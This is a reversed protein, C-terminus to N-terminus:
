LLKKAIDSASERYYITLMRLDKHGIAMALANINLKSALRTVAEARSDHFHLDKILAKDRAKRFLADIQGTKLQFVLEESKDLSNLIAIAKPSLPVDRRAAQTKGFTKLYREELYVRDWTLGAIEGARMGTEIAFAFAAGVRATITSPTNGDYGLTYLLSDIEKQSPRRERARPTAPRKVDKMPHAPLWKWEKVAISCASSLINWERLVSAASVSKLRRDRWEAFNRQDLNPLRIYALPDKLLLNIRTTEWKQGRKTTTVEDRYREMLAGFTIDPIGKSKGALILSETDAAWQNAEYKTDFTAHKKIGNKRIEVYYGKGRKRIYAM